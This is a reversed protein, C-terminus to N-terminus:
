PFQRLPYRHHRAAMEEDQVPRRLKAELERYLKLIRKSKRRLDRTAPDAARLGDMIAGRVRHRAYTELKARKTVDFKAVAGVLGVVGDATLDDVEVHAPLRERFKLAIRRVLPLMEILLCHRNDRRNFARKSRETRRRVSARGTITRPGSNVVVGAEGSTQSTKIEETM